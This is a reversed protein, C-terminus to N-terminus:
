KGDEQLPPERKAEEEGEACAPRLDPTAASAIKHQQPSNDSKLNRIFAGDEQKARTSAVAAGTVHYVLIGCLWVHM